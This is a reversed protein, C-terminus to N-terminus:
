MLKLQFNALIIAVKMFGSSVVIFLLYGEVGTDSSGM